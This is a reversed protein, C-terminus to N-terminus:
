ELLDFVFIKKLERKPNTERTPWLGRLSQVNNIITVKKKTANTLM